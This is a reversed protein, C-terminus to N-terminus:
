KTPKFLGKMPNKPKEIQLKKEERKAQSDRIRNRKESEEKRKEKKIENPREFTADKWIKHGQFAGELVDVPMITLRPGIETLQNDEWHIQYHRILIKNQVRFFSLVHDVFPKSHKDQFPVSFVRLLLEKAIKFIISNPSSDSEFSPDFLILPRSGKLCNGLMHLSYISNEEEVFFHMTPGTPIKSIWFYSEQKRARTEFLMVTDCHNDGAIEDLFHFEDDDIRNGKKAHPILNLFDKLIDNHRPTMQKTTLLLPKHTLPKNINIKEKKPKPVLEKLIAAM